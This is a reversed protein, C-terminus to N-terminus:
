CVLAEVLKGRGDCFFFGGSHDIYVLTPVLTAWIARLVTKNSSLKTHM